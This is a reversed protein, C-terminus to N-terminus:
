HSRSATWRLLLLRIVGASPVALLMGLLGFWSGGIIIALIVFVPHLGVSDGVIKPSILNSDLQQVVVLVGVALLAQVPSGGLLAVAAALVSGILPGVYPIINCLGATMGVLVAYDLGILFLAVSSIIGVILAVLLQGRIFSAIIGNVDAMLSAFGPGPRRPLVLRVAQQWLQQFYTIDKLLYFAIILGMVLNILNSFFGSLSVVFGSGASALFSQITKVTGLLQNKLGESLPSAELSATLRHFLQQYTQTYATIGAVMTELDLKQPLSGSILVYIFYIFVVVLCLFLLYTILVSLTRRLQRHRDASAGPTLFRFRKLLQGEIRSVMPHLLYTVVLAILLPALLSILAGFIEGAKALIFGLHALLSYLIYLITATGIVYAALKTYAQDLIIKM